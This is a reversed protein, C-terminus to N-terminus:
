ANLICEYNTLMKVTHSLRMRTVNEVSDNHKENSLLWGITSTAQSHAFLSVCFIIYHSSLFFFLFILFYSSLFDPNKLLKTSGRSIPFNIKVFKAIKTMRSCQFVKKHFMKQSITSAILGIILNHRSINWILSFKKNKQHWISM